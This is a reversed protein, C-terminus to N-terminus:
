SRLRMSHRERLANEGESHQHQGAQESGDGVPVVAIRLADGVAPGCLHGFLRLSVPLGGVLRLLGDGRRCLGAVREGQLDLGLQWRDLDGAM